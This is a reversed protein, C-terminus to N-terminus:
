RSVGNDLLQGVVTIMSQEARGQAEVGHNQYYLGLAHRTDRIQNATTLLNHSSFLQQAIQPDRLSTSQYLAEVGEILELTITEQTRRSLGWDQIRRMLTRKSIIVGQEALAELMQQQTSLQFTMSEILSRCGELDALPRPM